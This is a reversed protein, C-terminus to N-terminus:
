TLSIRTEHASAPFPISHRIGGKRLLCPFSPCGASRVYKTTLVIFTM